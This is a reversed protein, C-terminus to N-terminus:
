TIERLRRIAKELDERTLNTRGAPDTLASFFNELVNSVDKIATKIERNEERLSKYKLDDYELFFCENYSRSFFEEYKIFDSVTYARTSMLKNLHGYLIQRHEIPMKASESLLTIFTRRLDRCTIKEFGCTLSKDRIMNNISSPNPERMPSINESFVYEDDKIQYPTESSYIRIRESLKLQLYYLTQKGIVAIHGVGTKSRRNFFAVCERTNELTANLDLAHKIEGYTLGVLDKAYLGSEFLGFFLCKQHLNMKESVQRIEMKKILARKAINMGNDSKGLQNSKFVPKILCVMEFFQNVYYTKTRTFEHSIPVWGFSKEQDKTPNERSLSFDIILRGIKKRDLKETTAQDYLESPSLNVFQCFEYLSRNIRRQSNGSLGKQLEMFEIMYKDATDDIFYLIRKKRKQQKYRPFTIGFFRMLRKIYPTQDTKGIGKLFARYEHVKSIEDEPNNKLLSIYENFSLNRYTLYRGIVSIYNRRYRKDKDLENEKLFHNFSEHEYLEQYQTPQPM